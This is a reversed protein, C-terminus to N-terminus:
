GPGGMPPRDETTATALQRRGDAEASVARRIPLASSGVGWERGLLCQYPSDRTSRRQDPCTTITRRIGRERLLRKVSSKSIHFQEALERATTGASYGSVLSRLDAEDLRDSVRWVRPAQDSRVSRGAGPKQGDGVRVREVASVLESVRDLRKSYAILLDVELERSAPRARGQRCASRATLRVWAEFSRVDSLQPPHAAGVLPV